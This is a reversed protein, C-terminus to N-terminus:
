HQMDRPVIGYDISLLIANRTMNKELQHPQKSRRKMIAEKDSSVPAPSGLIRAAM